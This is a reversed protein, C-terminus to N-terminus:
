LININPKIQIFMHKKSFTYLFWFEQFSILRKAQISRDPNYIYIPNYLVTQIIYIYSQISRDPNFVSELLLINGLFITDLCIM